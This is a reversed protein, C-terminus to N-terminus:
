FDNRACLGSDSDPYDYCRGTDCGDCDCDCEYDCHEDCDCDCDYTCFLSSSTLLKELLNNKNHVIIQM